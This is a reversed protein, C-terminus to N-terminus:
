NWIVTAGAELRDVVFVPETVAVGPMMVAKAIGREALSLRDAALEVGGGSLRQLWPAVSDRVAFVGNEIFLMATTCSCRALGLALEATREVDRHEAPDRSEVILCHKM